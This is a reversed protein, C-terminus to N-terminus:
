KPVPYGFAALVEGLGKLNNSLDERGSLYEVTCAALIAMEAELIM